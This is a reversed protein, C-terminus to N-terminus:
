GWGTRRKARDTAETSWGHSRVGSGSASSATQGHHDLASDGSPRLLKPVDGSWPLYKRGIEFPQSRRVNTRALAVVPARSSVMLVAVVVTLCLMAVCQSTLAIATATMTAASTADSITARLPDDLLVDVPVDSDVV